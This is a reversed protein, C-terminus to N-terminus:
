SELNIWMAPRVAGTGLSVNIGYASVSGVINVNAAHYSHLGSSRLWWWCNNNDSNVYCGQAKVYATPKCQREANSCFYKNAEPISLLFIQDQTSNGQSIDYQPNKDASVTVTPIMAREEASFAENMFTENLWKRLSCTEWTVDNNSINYPQCDLGYESIVLFRNEERAIM